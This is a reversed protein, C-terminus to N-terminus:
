PFFLQSNEKTQPLSHSLNLYFNLSCHAVTGSRNASQVNGDLTMM